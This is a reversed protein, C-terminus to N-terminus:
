VIVQKETILKDLPVDFPEVPLKNVLCGEFLLGIKPCDTKSLFRDYFGKGYGIRNKQSDGGVMPVIVLGFQEPEVEKGESPELVGWRNPKLDEFRELKIHRLRGKEIQTFPVVVTKNMQLMEKILSHTNVERRDNISVYCHVTQAEHFESLKKLRERIQKSQKQHGDEPIKKRHALLKERIQQKQKSKNM